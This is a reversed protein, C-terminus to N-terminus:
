NIIVKILEGMNQLVDAVQNKNRFNLVLTGIAENAGTFANVRGGESIWLDTEVLYEKIKPDLQLGHFIGSRNSYLIIEAWHGKYEIRSIEDIDEGLAAQISRKILNTGTAYHLMESLRNGGGRPAVEMIYANGDTTERVEINYVSTKMGLLQILRQLESKLYNQNGKSIGSPWSYAAPTYPNPSNPDFRQNSFSIFQFEGNVSFCDSDSSFGKSELFDEIIFTKSPSNNIANIIASELDDQLNVKSVGKSGASDVPKVIVPLEFYDFEDLATEISTYSKSKPVKFNNTELFKRFLAKNQLIKISEYPGPCSLGMEESVYAATIVGPDVAFSMIGDIKLSKALLLIADKDLINENHYEDSFKHAINDPKYDCTIVHCGMDQATKIVPILYRLGGLLMLKKM